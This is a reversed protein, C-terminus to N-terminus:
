LGGDIMEKEKKLPLHVSFQLQVQARIWWKSVPADAKWLKDLPTKVGAWFRAWVEILMNMCILVTIVQVNYGEDIM